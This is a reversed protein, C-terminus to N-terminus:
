LGDVHDEPSFRIFHRISNSDNKYVHCRLIDCEGEVKGPVVAELFHSEDELVSMACKVEGPVVAELLQGRLVAVEVEGAPHHQNAVQRM